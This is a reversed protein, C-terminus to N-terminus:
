FKYGVSLSIKSYKIDMINIGTKTGIEGNNVSYLLEVQFKDFTMGGGIGYFLGGTTEAEEPLNEFQLLNYGAKVTMYFADFQYRALAYVPIFNFKDKFETERTLQYEFGAGFTLDKDSDLIYEGGITIGTKVDYTISYPSIHADLEGAVDPGVKVVIGALVSGASFAVLVLSLILTILGKRM